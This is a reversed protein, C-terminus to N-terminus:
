IGGLQCVTQAEKPCKPACAQFDRHLKRRSIAYHLVKPAHILSMTLVEEPVTQHLARATFALIFALFLKIAGPWAAERRTTVPEESLRAVGAMELKSLAKNAAERVFPIADNLKATLSSAFMALAAPELKELTEVTAGRVGGDEDELKAALTPAHMVIVAPELRGLVEIAAKRIEGNVDDIKVLADVVKPAYAKPEFGCRELERASLEGLKLNRQMGGVDLQRKTELIGQLALSMNEDCSYWDVAKNLWANKVASRLWGVVREWGDKTAVGENVLSQRLEGELGPLMDQLM